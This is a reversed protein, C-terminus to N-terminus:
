VSQFIKALNKRHYRFNGLHAREPRQGPRLLASSGNFAVVRIMLKDKRSPDRM